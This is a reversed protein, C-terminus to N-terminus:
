DGVTLGQLNGVGAVTAGTLLDKWPPDSDGLTKVDTALVKLDVKKRWAEFKTEEDAITVGKQAPQLEFGGPGLAYVILTDQQDRGLTVLRSPGTEIRFRGSWLGVSGLFRYRREGVLTYVFWEDVGSTGTAQSNALWLEKQGDGDVDVDMRLIRAAFDGQGESRVWFNEFLDGPLPVGDGRGFPVSVLSLLVLTTCCLGTKKM